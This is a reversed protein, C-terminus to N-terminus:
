TVLVLFGDAQKGSPRFGARRFAALSGPNEERVHAEVEADRHSERLQEVALSIFSPSLGQGRAAPALSISIEYSQEGLRDFRVQGAPEGGLECILLLRAPDALVATLWTAHEETGVEATNRSATRTVPDNRWERLLAADDESAPRLSLEPTETPV